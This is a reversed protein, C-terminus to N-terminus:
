RGALQRAEKLVSTDIFAALRDRTVPERQQSRAIWREEETLVDLMDAPLAAPFAHFRWSGSVTDATQKIMRAVLPIVERPRERVTDTAVIVARVFEVLERRRRSDSLVQTTTYLSFLERYVSNDQMVTADEGLAHLANQAEPEWMSIADAERRAIAAAMETRGTAVLQVDAEALGVTGLMKVLHYHASTQRPTVIRKGRLDALTNIGASTRAIIRYLGESVTLLVRVNPNNPVVLLMQTEANTGAHAGGSAVDRVGGEIIRVGAGQPSAGAVFIPATEITTMNVAVTFPDNPGLPVLRRVPQDQGRGAVGLSLLGVSTAALALRKMLLLTM